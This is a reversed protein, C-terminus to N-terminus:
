KNLLLSELEKESVAKPTNLNFYSEYKVQSGIEGNGVGMVIFNGKMKTEMVYSFFRMLRDLQETQKENLM